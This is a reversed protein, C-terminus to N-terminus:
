APLSAWWVPLSSFLPPPYPPSHYERLMPVQPRCPSPKWRNKDWNQGDQDYFILLTHNNCGLKSSAINKVLIYAVKEDTDIVGSVLVRWFYYKCCNLMPRFLPVVLLWLAPRFCPISTLTIDGWLYTILSKTLNYIPYPIENTMFLAMQTKLLPSYVWVGGLNTQSHTGAGLSFPALWPTQWVHLVPCSPLHFLLYSVVSKCHFATPQFGANRTGKFQFHLIYIVIILSYWHKM